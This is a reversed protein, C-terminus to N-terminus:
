STGMTAYGFGSPAPEHTLERRVARLGAETLRAREDDPSEAAVLLRECAFRLRRHKEALTEYEDTM